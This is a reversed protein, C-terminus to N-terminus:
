SAPPGTRPPKVDPPRLYWPEVQDYSVEVAPGYADSGALAVHRAQPVGVSPPCIGTSRVAPLIAPYASLGSGGVLIPRAASAQALLDSLWAAAENPFLAQEADFRLSSAGDVRMDYAAAFVQGKRADTLVVARLDGAVDAHQERRWEAMGWAIVQLTSVGVVGIGLVQAMTRATALSLRLGTFSGPGVSVAIRQLMRPEMGQAQLLELAMPFLFTLQEGPRRESREVVTGACALAVSCTEGSCEIGLVPGSPNM